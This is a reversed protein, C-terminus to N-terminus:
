SGLILVTISQNHLYAQGRYKDASLPAIEAQSYTGIIPTDQGLEEQVAEIEKHADNGLLNYRSLSSFIVAAKKAEEANAQACAQFNAKAEGAAQRAAELCTTKTGLMLRVTANQPVEGSFTISGTSGLSVPNRLLYGRDKPLLIGLPYLCSILKLNNKLKAWDYGMYDHYLKTAPAGDIQEVTNNESKTVTCSRGIAKWGHSAGIGFFLRNDIAAAVCADSSIFQNFYLHSELFAGGSPCIGIIPENRGLRSHIGDIFNSSAQALQDSFILSLARPYDKLGSTLKEGMEEGALQARRAVNIVQATHLGAKQIFALLMIGVAHRLVGGSSIVAKGSSGVIPTNPLAENIVKLLSSSSLNPTCFVLALDAHEKLAVKAMEVAEHAAVMSNNNQSFGTGIEM